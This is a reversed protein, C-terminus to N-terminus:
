ARELQLCLDNLHKAAPAIKIRKNYMSV